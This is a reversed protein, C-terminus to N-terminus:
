ILKILFNKAPFYEPSIDLCNKIAKKALTKENKKIYCNALMYHMEPDYYFKDEAKLLYYLAIDVFDNYLMVRAIFKYSEVNVAYFLDAGNIINEVFGAKRANILLHLDIELFNRIQFYSPMNLVYGNIFQILKQGWDARIDQKVIKSFQLEATKIDGSLLKCYSYELLYNNRYFFSEVSYDGSLLKNKAEQYSEIIM